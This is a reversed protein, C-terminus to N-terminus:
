PYGGPVVLTPAAPGAAKRLSDALRLAGPRSMPLTVALGGESSFTLTVTRTDVEGAGAVAVRIAETPRRGNPDSM